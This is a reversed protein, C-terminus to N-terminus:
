VGRLFTSMIKSLHDSPDRSRIKMRIMKKIDDDTIILVGRSQSFNQFLTRNYSKITKSPESRCVIFGWLGIAPKLYCYVQRLDDRTIEDKNKADFLVESVSYKTKLDSFFGTEAINQAILDRIELGENGPETRVQSKAEGLDGSFLYNLCVRVFHEYSKFHDRGRPILQDISKAEEFLMSGLMQINSVLLVQGDEIAKEETWFEPNSGGRVFYLTRGEWGGMTRHPQEAMAEFNEKHFHIWDSKVVSMRQLFDEYSISTDIEFEDDEQDDYTVLVATLLDPIEYVEFKFNWTSTLFSHFFENLAEVYEGTFHDM